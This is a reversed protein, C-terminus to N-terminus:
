TYTVLCIVLFWVIGVGMVQRDGLLVETPDGKGEKAIYIFRLLGFAALPVTYFLRSRHELTYLSYMVLASSASFWLVGELFSLSYSSLSKRHTHADKGLSVLEGMRKGSALFLSVMFVTMFLWNSVPVGFAEGGALVRVIFGASIIFIDLIAIEKFFYTYSASILLYAIIYLFFNTSVQFSIYLALFFLIAAVSIATSVSIEGSAISRNKKGDHNRDSEIDKIDNIIYSCSAALCFALLAPFGNEMLSNNFISGAFFPPFLLLLNKIWQSPRLLKIYTKHM